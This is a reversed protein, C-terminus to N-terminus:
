ENVIYYRIYREGFTIELIQTSNYLLLLNYLVVQFQLLPGWIGQQVLQVRLPFQVGCRQCPPAAEEFHRELRNIQEELVADHTQEVLLITVHAIGFAAKYAGEATLEHERCLM